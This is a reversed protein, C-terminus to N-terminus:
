FDHGPSGEWWKKEERKWKRVGVIDMGGGEMNRGEKREPTPGAHNMSSVSAVQGCM